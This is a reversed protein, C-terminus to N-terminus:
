QQSRAAAPAAVRRVTTQRMRYLRPAGDRSPDAFQFDAGGPATTVRIPLKGCADNQIYATEYRLRRTNWTYVRLLTFDCPQGEGGRAGAVLYQPKPEGDAPVTNLVVWAVVRIGSANFYDPIPSPPDLEIFRALVWGAIPVPPADSSSASSGAPTGASFTGDGANPPETRLVLLWDELGLGSEAAGPPEASSEQPVPSTGRELVTVPQNRGFQFIRPGDRGPALRVNSITRTHGRAQVPMARARALLDAAQQWLEGDMLQVTDIWGRVGADSRVETRDGSRQLVTVRDGYHLTAVPQRVQANANWLIASREAVYALVVEAPPRRYWVWWVASAVILLLLIAPIWRRVRVQAM